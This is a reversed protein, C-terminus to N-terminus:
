TAISAMEWQASSKDTADVVETADARVFKILIQGLILAAYTGVKVCLQM